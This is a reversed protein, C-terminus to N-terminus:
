VVLKRAGIECMNGMAIEQIVSADVGIFTGNWYARRWMFVTGVAVYYFGKFSDDHEMIAGANIIAGKGRFTGEAVKAKM